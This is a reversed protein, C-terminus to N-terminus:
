QMYDMLDTFLDGKLFNVAFDLLAEKAEGEEGKDEGGEVAVGGSGQQDAVQRAKWLLYAREAEQWRGHVILCRERKLWKILCCAGFSHAFIYLRVKLAEVCELRGEASVDSGGGEGPVHEAIAMPTIDYSGAITPDAGNELLARVVGGRGWYCACWLATKGDEDRHNIGTKVSAHALLLRVVELHGGDSAAILPTSCRTTTAITPDAGRELLLRAVPTCGELCAMWLATCGGIDREDIVAGRDLLCRVVGVHGKTSAFMLPTSGHVGRADLLGSDQGVLWEVEGVDGAGAAGWIDAV